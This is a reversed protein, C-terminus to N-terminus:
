CNEKCSENDFTMMFNKIMQTSMKREQDTFPINSQLDQGKPM